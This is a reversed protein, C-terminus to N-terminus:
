DMTWMINLTLDLLLPILLPTKLLGLSLLNIKLSLVFAGLHVYSKDLSCQCNIWM